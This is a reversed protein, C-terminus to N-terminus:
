PNSQTIRTWATESGGSWMWIGSAGFDGYLISGSAAMDESDSPTIRTWDTEAGGSWMWIGSAGFDGYLISGSAAMDESDSPTIRTWDTEAGGSWMWIGSAGFDGYLVSGSAAMDESDSPTIRTWDTEAGGSWMWIGSAGFDGYLISGSAAMNEGQSLTPIPTIPSPIFVTVGYHIMGSYNGGWTMSHNNHDWTDHLFVVSGTDSYGYGLMTHDEVQILVPRGADIEQKYQAFTFGITNPGNGDGSDYGYIYQSYNSAVTYGRSEFFLKMGHCADRIDPEYSIFDYLPSGDSYYYFKTAGDANSKSSQNTGMFDGTCEGQVHEDWNGIFPDPLTSGTDIWYDDVHGKNVRGDLWMHTASLPCEGSGWVANTLPCVGGNAPGTYLNPYGINDYYGFMMAASTTSCGYSWDFAPVNSLIRTEMASSSEPVIAQPARYSEPPRGPVIVEDISKGSQVFRRIVNPKDSQVGYSNLTGAASVSAVQFFCLISIAISLCCCRSRKM